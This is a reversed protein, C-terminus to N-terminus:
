DVFSIQHTRIRERLAEPKLGLVAAAKGVDWGSKVLVRHIYRREFALAAQGLTPYPHLGAITAQERTEVLLNLHAVGIEDDEVLIVFREVVNMLESVNGPWHYNVFAKLAEGSITKPKKGYELSYHRLYYVILPPIDEPRERLPPIAMPIVNLRFFIDERFRGKAILDKLSRSTAAVVRTDFFIPEGAGSPEYRQEVMAKVLRAQTKLSMDGIEDLFLTGGDALLIKGKKERHAAPASDRVYGFLESEILEDPIAACNIEVFRKDARRSKAHVLRAVLEKGTGSEGTILVRGNTPAAKAIERRLRQMAASRGVLQLRSKVRERLQVNEEELKRQRLANKVTLVVKELSLPKELFDFAGLKTATVATEVTGHGSIIVIPPPDDLARVRELVQLGSLEPLWIDLLILDFNQARLLALGAEGTEATRVAFGEDELIGQLSSRISSEDDIVLVRDGAM